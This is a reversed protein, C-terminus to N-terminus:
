GSRLKEGCLWLTITGERLNVNKDVNFKLQEGKEPKFAQRTDFGIIGRLGLNLNKLTTSVPDGKALDPM